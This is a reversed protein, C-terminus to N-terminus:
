SVQVKLDEPHSTTEEYSPPPERSKSKVEDGADPYCTKQATNSSGQESNESSEDHRWQYIRWM